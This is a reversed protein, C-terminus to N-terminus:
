ESMNSFLEDNREWMEIMIAKNEAPTIHPFLQLWERSIEFYEPHVGIKFFKAYDVSKGKKLNCTKCLIQFNSENHKGGRSLPIIHDVQLNDTSSCGVCKYGCKELVRDRVIPRM